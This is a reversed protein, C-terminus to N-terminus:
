KCQARWGRKGRRRQRSTRVPLLQQRLSPTEILGRTGVPSDDHHMCRAALRTRRRKLMGRGRLREFWSQLGYANRIVTVKKVTFSQGQWNQYGRENLRAAIQRDTRTELLEDVARVWRPFSKASWPWDAEAERHHREPGLQALM